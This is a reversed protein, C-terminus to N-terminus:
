VPIKKALALFIHEKTLSYRDASKSNALVIGDFGIKIETVEKVGNSACLEEESAKIARSANSIDPHTEGLGSCFLKFGGGTGTSEVIPTKFKTSKGFEEASITVFPYVTSSGVIQIQDGAYAQSPISMVALATLSLLTKKM